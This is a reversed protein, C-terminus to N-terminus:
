DGARHREADEEEGVRVESEVQRRTRPDLPPAAAVVEELAELAGELRRRAALGTDDDVPAVEEVPAPDGGPEGLPDEGAEAREGVAPGVDEPYRAVVLAGGHGAAEEQGVRSHADEVPRPREDHPPVAEREGERAEGEGGANSGLEGSEEGRGPVGLDLRVHTEEADVLRDLPRGDPRDVVDEPRAVLDHAAAVDRRAEGGDEGAVDVARLHQGAVEGAPRERRGDEEGARRVPGGEGLSELRLPREEELDGGAAPGSPGDPPLEALERDPRHGDEVDVRGDLAELRAEALGDRAEVGPAEDAQPERPLRRRVRQGQQAGLREAGQGRRSHVEGDAPRRRRL